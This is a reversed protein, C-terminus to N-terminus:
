EVLDSTLDKKVIKSLVIKHSFKLVKRRVSKTFASSRLLVFFYCLKMHDNLRMTFSRAILLRVLSKILTFDERAQGVM